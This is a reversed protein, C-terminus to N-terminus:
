RRFASQRAIGFSFGPAHRIRGRQPRDGGAILRRERPEDLRFRRAEQAIAPAHKAAEFLRFVDHLFGETAKPFPGGAPLGFGLDARPKM